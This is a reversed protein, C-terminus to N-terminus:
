RGAAAPPAFSTEPLSLGEPPAPDLLERALALHGQTLADTALEASLIAPSKCVHADVPVDGPVVPLFRLIDRAIDLRRFDLARQILSRVNVYESLLTSSDNNSPTVGELLSDLMAAATRLRDQAVAQRVLRPPLRPIEPSASGLTTAQTKQLVLKDLAVRAVDLHGAAIAKRAAQRVLERHNYDILVRAPAPPPHDPLKDLVEGVQGFADQDLADQLCELALSWERFRLERVESSRQMPLGLLDGYAAFVRRASYADSFKKGAIGIRTADVESAALWSIIKPWQSYDDEILCNMASEVSLGRFAVRTGLVPVGTALGEITKLSSGTGFDLPIVVISASNYLAILSADNVPGVALVNDIRMRESCTGALVFTISPTMKAIEFLRKV